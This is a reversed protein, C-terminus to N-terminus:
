WRASMEAVVFGQDLIFDEKFPTVSISSGSDIVIPVDCRDNSDTLYCAEQRTGYATRTIKLAKLLGKAAVYARTLKRCKSQSEFEFKLDREAQFAELPDIREFLDYVYQSRFQDPVGYKWQIYKMTKVYTYFDFQNDWYAAYDLHPGVM